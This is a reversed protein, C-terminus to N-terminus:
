IKSKLFDIIQRKKTIRSPIKIGKEKAIAKLQAITMKPLSKKITKTTVTKTAEVEVEAEAEAEVEAEAKVEAEAEVEVEVEAEVEAEIVVATATEALIVAEETIAITAKVCAVFLVFLWVTIVAVCLLTILSLGVILGKLLAEASISTNGTSYCWSFTAVFVGGAISAFLITGDSLNQQLM